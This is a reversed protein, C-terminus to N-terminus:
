YNCRQKTQAAHHHRSHQSFPWLVSMVTGIVKVWCFECATRLALKLIMGALIGSKLSMRWEKEPEDRMGKGPLFSPAACCALCPHCPKGSRWRGKSSPVMRITTKSHNTYRHQNQWSTSSLSVQGLVDKTMPIMGILLSARALANWKPIRCGAWNVLWACHKEQCWLAM